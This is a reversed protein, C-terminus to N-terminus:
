PYPAMIAQARCPSVATSAPLAVKCQQNVAIGAQAVKDLVGVLGMIDGSMSATKDAQPSCDGVVHAIASGLGSLVSVVSLTKAACAEGGGAACGAQAAKIASAAQFIGSMVSKADVICSGTRLTTVATVANDAATGDKIWHTLSGAGAALGSAASVLSGAAMGCQANGAGLGGACSDVAKAIISAMDTVSQVASAVDIECKIDDSAAAGKPCRETAAWLYVGANTADNLSGAGDIACTLEDQASALPLTALLALRFLQM